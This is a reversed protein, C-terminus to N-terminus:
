PGTFYWGCAALWPVMKPELCASRAVLFNIPDGPIPM